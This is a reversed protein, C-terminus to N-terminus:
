KREATGLDVAISLGIEIGACVLLIGIMKRQIIQCLGITVFTLALIISAIFCVKQWKGKRYRFYEKRKESIKNEFYEKLADKVARKVIFYLGLIVILVAIVIIPLWEM